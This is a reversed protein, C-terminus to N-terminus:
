ARFAERLARASDDILEWARPTIGAMRIVGHVLGEYCRHVTPVGANALRRAYAEGEDSLPDYECTLVVAPAVGRLDVARLPSAEPDDRRGVDPVYHGWYWRMAERALLFGEAYRGYSPTGFDHDTVPYILLQLRLDPSGYQLARLAM